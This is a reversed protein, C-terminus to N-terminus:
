IDPFTLSENMNHTAKFVGVHTGAQLTTTSLISIDFNKYIM